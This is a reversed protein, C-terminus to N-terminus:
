APIGMLIMAVRLVVYCFAAFLAASILGGAFGSEVRWFKLRPSKM